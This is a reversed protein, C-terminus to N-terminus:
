GREPLKPPAILSGVGPVSRYLADLPDNKAQEVLLRDIEKVKRVLEVWEDRLIEITRKLEGKFRILIEDVHYVKIRGQICARFLGFYRLRMRIQVMVRRKKNM